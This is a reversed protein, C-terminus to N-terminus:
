TQTDFNQGATFGLFTTGGDTTLLSVVDKGNATLIPPTGDPWLISPGWQIDYNGTSSIILTYANATNNEPSNNLVFSTINDTLNIEFVSSSSLDLSLVNGALSYNGLSSKGTLNRVQINGKQLGHIACQYSFTGITEEPIQWYLTGSTQEQADSGTLVTGDLSVHTLGESYNVGQDTQLKFPHGPTNLKLSITTGAYVTIAPNDLDPGLQNIKYISGSTTVQYRQSSPLYIEDVTTQTNVYSTGNYYLLQGQIKIPINVDTLDNFANAGSTAEIALATTIGLWLNKEENYTYVKGGAVYQQGDVANNPFDIEAM